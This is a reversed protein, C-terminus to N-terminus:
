FADIGGPFRIIEVWDGAMASSALPARKILCDAHAFVAFMSSDQREAPTAVLNGEADSALKARLYEERRDNEGLDCGLRALVTDIENSAVGSLLGIAPAVFLRATVGVSVPNGPLGLVPINGFRGFILPKGPRMAIKHFDLELGRSGLESAVLDYDGVSAGGITILLDANGLRDLAAGLSESTDRAIGLSRPEGGLARIYGTLAVSNSSVIQDAGVKEGPMVLEDGTALVAVVPRRYVLVDAINSSAILAATRATLREGADVLRDGAKIDLGAERIFQGKRPDELVSVRDGDRETNEQIVVTDAGDPVVAGTFIRVTEGAGITGDFRHGARSEGVVSLTVPIAEVDCARVAYGDMASVPAPPHSLTADVPEATVRGQADLVSVTEVGVPELKATIRALAEEVSLM